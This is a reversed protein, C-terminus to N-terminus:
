KTEEKIQEWKYQSFEKSHNTCAVLQIYGDKGLLKVSHTPTSECYCCFTPTMSKVEMTNLQADINNLVAEAGEKKSSYSLQAILTGLVVSFVADKQRETLDMFRHLRNKM